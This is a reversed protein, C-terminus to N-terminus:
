DIGRCIQPEDVDCDSGAEHRKCEQTPRSSQPDSAQRTQKDDQQDRM